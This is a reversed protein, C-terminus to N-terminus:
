IGSPVNMGPQVCSSYREASLSASIRSCCTSTVSALSALDVLSIAISVSVRSPDPRPLGTTTVPLDAVNNALSTLLADVTSTSTVPTSDPACFLIVIFM